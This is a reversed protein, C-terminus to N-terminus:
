NIKPKKGGPVSTGPPKTKKFNWGIQIEGYNFRRRKVYKKAKSILM